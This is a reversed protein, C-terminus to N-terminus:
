NARHRGPDADDGLRLHRRDGRRRGRRVCRRLRPVDVRRPRLPQAPVGRDRAAVRRWQRPRSRHRGLDGGAPARLRRRVHGRRRRRPHRLTSRRWRLSRPRPRLRRVARRHGHGHRHRRPREARQAPRAAPPRDHRAARLPRGRSTRRRLPVLRPRRPRRRRPVDADASLGYTIAGHAAALQRASPEDIGVVKAGPVQALYADFSEVIAEPTGFHDLHDVEVNTLISAALPLALHTGDSEDAEVVLWESGTWQAGTGADNVDGGVVFSPSGAWRRRADAHADVHDHDQRADRGSRGGARVRLDLGAHRGPAHHPCRPRHAARWEINNDPIASSAVVADCGDVVDPDHGVRVVVGAARVRDLSPQERLDSGSVRHGMEALAIAIASM